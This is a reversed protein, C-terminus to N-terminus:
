RYWAQYQSFTPLKRWIFKQNGIFFSILIQTFASSTYL